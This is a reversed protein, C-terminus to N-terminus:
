ARRHVPLPWIPLVAGNAFHGTNPPPGSAAIGLGDSFKGGNMNAIGQEVFAKWEPYPDFQPLFERPDTGRHDVEFIMQILLRAAEHDDVTAVGGPRVVWSSM